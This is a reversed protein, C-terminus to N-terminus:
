NCYLENSISNIAAQLQSANLADSYSGGNGSMDILLQEDLANEPDSPDGIGVTYLKIGMTSKMYNTDSMIDGYDDWPAGDSIFIVVKTATPRSNPNGTFRMRGEYLGDGYVTGDSPNISDDLSDIAANISGQNGTLEVDEYGYQNFSVISAHNGGSNINTDQVFQKAVAQLTQIRSTGGTWPSLMSGSKDLVFVIDHNGQCVPTTPTGSSVPQCMANTPDADTIDGPISFYTASISFRKCIAGNSSIAYGPVLGGTQVVPLRVQIRRLVDTAKGTSDVIAQVGTIGQPNTGNLAEVTINSSRYMSSLRLTMSRPGGPINTFTASCLSYSGTTCNAAVVNTHGTSGAHDLQGTGAVRTPVFMGSVQNAGLGARSLAGDTPVLDARLLGYGCAWNTQTSFINSTGNPCDAPTGWPINTPKWTVRVSTIPNATTIPVVLSNNGAGDFLLSTPSPNVRLCTYSVNYTTDVVTQGGTPYVGGSNNTTCSDKAVVPQGTKVATEIVSRADEIGSEAAYFAQSSQLQDLSERQERRSITAFGIVILSIVVMTVMTIVISAMGRQNRRAPALCQNNDKRMGSAKIISHGKM